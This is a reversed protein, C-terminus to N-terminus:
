RRVARRRRGVLPLVGGLAFAVIGVVIVWTPLLTTLGAIIAAAGGLLLAIDVPGFLTPESPQEPEQDM